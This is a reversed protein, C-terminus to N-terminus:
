IVPTSITIIFKGKYIIEELFRRMMTFGTSLCEVLATIQFGVEESVRFDPGVAAGKAVLKEAAEAIQLTVINKM